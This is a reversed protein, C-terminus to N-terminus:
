QKHPQGPVQLFQHKARQRRIPRQQLIVMSRIDLQTLQHLRPFQAAIIHTEKLTIGLCCFVTVYLHGRGYVSYRYALIVYMTTATYPTSVSGSNLGISTPLSTSSIVGGYGSYNMQNAPTNLTPSSYTTSSSPIAYNVTSSYNWPSTTAGMANPQVAQEIVAKCWHSPNNQDTM